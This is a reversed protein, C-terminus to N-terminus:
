DLNSNKNAEIKWYNQKRRHQEKANRCCVNFLTGVASVSIENIILVTGM